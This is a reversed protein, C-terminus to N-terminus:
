HIITLMTLVGLVIACAGVLKKGYRNVLAASTVLPGFFAGAVAGATLCALVIYDIAISHGALYLVFAAINIIVVSFLTIAISNKPKHGAAVLGTTAVPGYGGGSIAKNFGCIFSIINVKKWSFKIRRKMLMMIGMATVLMSIYLTLYAKPMSIAAFVAIITGAIGFSSLRALISLDRSGRKIKLNKLRKHGLVGVIAEAAQSFLISPVATLPPVGAALLAPTGITGYGMGIATDVLGLLFGLAVLTIELM